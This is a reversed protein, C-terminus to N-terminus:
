KKKEFKAEAREIDNEIFNADNAQRAELKQQEASLYEQTYFIPVKLRM